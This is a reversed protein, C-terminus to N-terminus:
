IQCFLECKTNAFQCDSHGTDYSSTCLIPSKSIQLGEFFSLNFSEGMNGVIAM